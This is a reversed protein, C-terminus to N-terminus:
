QNWEAAMLSSYANEIERTTQHISFRSVAEIRAQRGLHTALDPSATLRDIANALSNHDGNRFLLANTNDTVVEHAASYDSSIVPLECAMAEILSIGLGEHRSPFVFIDFCAMVDQIADSFGSFIVRDALNERDVYNRLNTEENGSG